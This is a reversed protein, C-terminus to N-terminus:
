RRREHNLTSPAKGFAGECVIGLERAIAGMMAHHHIAHHTAFALERGLTSGLEAEAGDATLMVRVRVPRSLEREGIRALEARLGEMAELAAIRDTEMPVNRERRDYEIPGDGAGLAARFHDLAHRVHQGVTGGALVGSPRVYAASDLSRVFAECQGVIAAAAEAVGCRCAGERGGRAEVVGMGVGGEGRGAIM